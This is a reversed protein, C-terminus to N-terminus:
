PISFSEADVSSTLRFFEKLGLTFGSKMGWSLVGDGFLVGEGTVLGGDVGGGAAVVDVTVNM